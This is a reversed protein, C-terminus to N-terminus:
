LGQGSTSGLHRLSADRMKGCQQQLRCSVIIRQVRRKASASVQLVNTETPSSLPDIHRLPVFGDIVATVSGRTGKLILSFLQKISRDFFYGSREEETILNVQELDRLMELSYGRQYTRDNIPLIDLEPRSEAYFVFLLRYIYVLCDDRMMEEFHDDTEDQSHFKNEPHQKIYWIAENALEEVANVVGRKLDQTVAYANKYSEDEIQQMLPTDGTAALAEQSVLLYFLAFYNRM